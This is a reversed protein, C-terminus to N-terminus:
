EREKETEKLANTNIHQLATTYHGDDLAHKCGHVAKKKNPSTYLGVAGGVFLVVDTYHLYLM